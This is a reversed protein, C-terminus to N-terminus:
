EDFFRFRTKRVMHSLRKHCCDDGAERTLQLVKGSFLVEIQFILFFDHLLDIHLAPAFTLLLNHTYSASIAVAILSSM